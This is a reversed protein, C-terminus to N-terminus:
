KKSAHKLKEARCTNKAREAIVQKMALLMNIDVVLNAIIIGISCFLNYLINSTLYLFVLANDIRDLKIYDPYNKIPLYYNPKYNFIKSVPLALCFM